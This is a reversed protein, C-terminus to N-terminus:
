EMVRRLLVSGDQLRRRPATEAASGAPRSAAHSGARFAPQFGGSLFCWSGGGRSRKVLSEQRQTSPMARRRRQPGPLPPNGSVSPPSLSEGPLFRPNEPAQLPDSIPCLSSTGIEAAAELGVSAARWAFATASSNWCASASPDGTPFTEPLHPRRAPLPSLASLQQPCFRFAASNKTFAADIRLGQFSRLAESFGDAGGGKTLLLGQPPKEVGFGFNRPVCPDQVGRPAACDQDHWPPWGTATRPAERSARAAQIGSVGSATAPVRASTLPRSDELFGGGPADIGLDYLRQGVM